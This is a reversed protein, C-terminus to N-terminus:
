KPQRLKNIRLEVNEFTLRKPPKKSFAHFTTHGCDVCWWTRPEGNGIFETNVNSSGCKPCYREKKTIKSSM